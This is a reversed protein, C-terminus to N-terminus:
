AAPEPPADKAARERPDHRAPMCFRLVLSVVLLSVMVVLRVFCAAGMGDVKRGSARDVPITAM